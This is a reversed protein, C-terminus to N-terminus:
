ASKTNPCSIYFCPSLVGRAVSNPAIHPAHFEHRTEAKAVSWVELGAAQPKFLGTDLREGPGGHTWGWNKTSTQGTLSSLM